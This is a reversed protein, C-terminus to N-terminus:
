LLICTKTNGAGERMSTQQGTPLIGSWRGKRRDGLGEAADNDTSRTLRDPTGIPTGIPTM